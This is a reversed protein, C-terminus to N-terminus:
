GSVLQLNETRKSTFLLLPAQTVVWCGGDLFDRKPIKKSPIFGLGVWGVWGLGVAPCPEPNM